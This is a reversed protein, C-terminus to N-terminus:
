PCLPNTGVVLTKYTGCAILGEWKGSGDINVYARDDINTIRVTQYNENSLNLYTSINTENINEINFSEDELTKAEVERILLKVNSTFANQTAGRVIGSITPVSISLIVILIVIVALLEVLTFGINRKM